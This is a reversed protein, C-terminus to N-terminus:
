KTCRKDDNHDEHDNEDYNDDDDDTSNYEYKKNCLLDNSFVTLHFTILSSYDYLKYRNSHRVVYDYIFIFISKSHIDVLEYEDVVLVDRSVFEDKMKKYQTNVM